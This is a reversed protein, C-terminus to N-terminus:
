GAQVSIKKTRAATIKPLVLKLVGDRVTAHIRDKDVEDSLTFVRHYDGVGYESYVLRHREPIEVDVTGHLTLENKELTIDISSQDVGPMDAYLIIDDKKEVIDVSPVYVRRERTHEVSKPAEAEKKAVEKTDSM